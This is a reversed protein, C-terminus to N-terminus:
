NRIPNDARGNIRHLIQKAVLMVNVVPTGTTGHRNKNFQQNPKDGTTSLHLHALLRSHPKISWSTQTEKYFPM